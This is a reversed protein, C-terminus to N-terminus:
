APPATRASPTPSPAGAERRGRCSPRARNENRKRPPPIVRRSPRHRPQDLETLVEATPRAPRRWRWGPRPGPSASTPACGGRRTARISCSTRRAAPSCAPWPACSRHAATPTSPSSTGRAWARPACGPPSAPGDPGVTGPLELAPRTRSPSRTPRRAAHRRVAEPVSGHWTADLPQRSRAPPGRGRRHRALVHQDRRDPDAAVLELLQTYQDLFHRMTDPRYLMRNYVLLLDLRGDHETVYLTIDFKSGLDPQALVEHSSASCPASSRRRRRLEDHQLLGPVAAHPEPRPGAPARRAAARVLVDQNDFAGLSVDRVREVLESFTPDDRCTPACCSRTSSCRRDHGRARPPGARRRAYRRHRRRRRDAHRGPRRVGGADGHLAHGGIRVGPRAAGPRHQRCRPGAADPEGEFTHKAPRVYDSPVECIPLEGGLQERWYGLQRELKEGSM